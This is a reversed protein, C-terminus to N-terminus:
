KSESEDRLQNFRNVQGKVFQLHYTMKKFFTSLQKWDCNTKNLYENINEQEAKIEADQSPSCILLIHKCIHNVLERLVDVTFTENMMKLELYAVDIDEQINQRLTDSTVLMLLNKLIDKVIMIVSTVRDEKSSLQEEMLDWYVRHMTTNVRSAIQVQAKEVGGIFQKVFEIGSDGAIKRIHQLIKEEFAQASKIYEDRVERNSTNPGHTRLQVILECLVNLQCQRDELLWRDFRSCYEKFMTYLEKSRYCFQVSSRVCVRRVLIKASLFVAKEAEMSRSPSLVDNPFTYILFASLFVSVLKSYSSHSVQTPSHRMIERLFRYAIVRSQRELMIRQFEDFSRLNHHTDRAIPITLLKKHARKLRIFRQILIEAM